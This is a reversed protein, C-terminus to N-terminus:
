AGAAGKVKKMWQTVGTEADEVWSGSADDAENVSQPGYAIDWEQEARAAEAAEWEENTPVAGYPQGNVQSTRKYLDALGAPRAEFDLGTVDKIYEIQERSEVAKKCYFSRVAEVPNGETRARSVAWLVALMTGTRGHGGDCAVGVSLPGNAEFYAVLHAWWDASVRPIDFDPWDIRLRPAEKVGTISAPLMAKAAEDASVIPPMGDHRKDTLDTAQVILDLKYQITMLSFISGAWLQTQGIKIVRKPNVHCRPAGAFQSNAATIKAM